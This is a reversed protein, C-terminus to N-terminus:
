GKKKKRYEAPSVGMTKRFMRSFYFPDEFALDEAIEKIHMETLDLMQCAHQMKLGIFYEIPSRTTKNRFILSFHSVSYGCYAALDKLNMTEHIHAHMYLISKEIVNTKQVSRIREFQPAYNFSGMLYWLCVSAYELNEMSYGMSLNQLIEEFLRIRRDNRSNEAPKLEKLILSNGSFRHAQEGKFHLWYISWPTADDAGYQHPMGAPIIFYMDKQIKKRQGEMELWGRGEFCYILIHQESGSLRERYHYRAKPYFGIDTIYLLKTLPNLELESQIYKPLVIANQNNFGEKKRVM